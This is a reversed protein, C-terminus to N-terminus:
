DLRLLMQLNAGRLAPFEDALEGLPAGAFHGHPTWTAEDFVPLSWANFRSFTLARYAFVREGDGVHGLLERM